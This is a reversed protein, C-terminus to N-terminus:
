NNYLFNEWKYIKDYYYSINDGEYKFDYLREGSKEKGLKCDLLYFLWNDALDPELNLKLASLLEIKQIDFIGHRKNIKNANDVLANVLTPKYNEYIAVLVASGNASLKYREHDNELREILERDEYDQQIEYANKNLENKYQEGPEHKLWYVLYM